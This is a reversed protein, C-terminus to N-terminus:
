SLFSVLLFFNALILCAVRVLIHPQGFKHQDFLMTHGAIGLCLISLTLSVM